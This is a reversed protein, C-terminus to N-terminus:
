LVSKAVQTPSTTKRCWKPGKIQIAGAVQLQLAIEDDVIRKIYKM